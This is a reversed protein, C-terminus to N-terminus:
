LYLIVKALRGIFLDIWFQCQGVAVADGICYGM